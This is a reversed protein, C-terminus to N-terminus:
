QERANCLQLAVVVITVVVAASIAIMYANTLWPVLAMGEWVMARQIETANNTIANIKAIM